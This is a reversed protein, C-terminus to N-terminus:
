PATLRYVHVETSVRQVLVYFNKGPIYLFKSMVLFNNPADTTHPPVVTNGPAPKIEAWTWTAPDLTFVSAGGAWGVFKKITPDYVFGPGRGNVVNQPGRTPVATRISGSRINCYSVDGNGVRVFLRREPDIAAVQEEGHSIDGIERWRNKKPDYEGLINKDSFAFVNGSVPDYDSAVSVGLVRSDAMRQWRNTALDLMWTAQTGGGSGSWLSGGGRWLKDLDPLYNLGDYTHVSAPNGDPYAARGESERLSPIQPSPGWLRSWRFTNVDLAYVENGAYDGHGGGHFLVRERKSDYAAGSWAAFVNAPNGEPTPVPPFVGPQQDLRSGEIKYWRGPEPELARAGSALAAVLVAALVLRRLTPIM